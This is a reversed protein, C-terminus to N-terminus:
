EGFLAQTQPTRVQSRDEAEQGGAQWAVGGSLYGGDASWGDAMRPGDTLWGDAM